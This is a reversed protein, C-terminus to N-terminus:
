VSIELEINRHRSTQSMWQATQVVSSGDTLEAASAPAVAAVAAAGATAPAGASPVSSDNQTRAGLSSEGKVQRIETKTEGGSEKLTRCMEIGKEGQKANTNVVLASGTVHQHTRDADVRSLAQVLISSGMGFAVLGFTTGPKLTSAIIRRWVEINDITPSEGAAMSQLRRTLPQDKLLEARDAFCLRLFGRKVKTRGTTSDHDPPFIAKSLTRAAVEVDVMRDWQHLPSQCTVQSPLSRTLCSIMSEVHLINVNQKLLFVRLDPIKIRMRCLGCVCSNLNPKVEILECVQEKFAVVAAAGAANGGYTRVAGDRTAIRLVSTLIDFIHRGRSNKQLNTAIAKLARNELADNGNDATSHGQRRNRFRRFIGVGHVWLRRAYDFLRFMDAIAFCYPLLWLFYM